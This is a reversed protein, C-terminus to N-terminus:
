DRWDHNGWSKRPCDGGGTTMTIQYIHCKAGCSSCQKAKNTDVKYWYHRCSPNGCSSNCGGFAYFLPEDVGMSIMLCNSCQFANYISTSNDNTQVNNQRAMNQSDRPSNNFIEGLANLFMIAFYESMETEYSKKTEKGGQDLYSKDASADSELSNEDHIEISSPNNNLQNKLFSPLSFLPEPM